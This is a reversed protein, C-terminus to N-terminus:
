PIVTQVSSTFEGGQWVLPFTLKLQHTEGQALYVPMENQTTKGSQTVSARVLVVGEAGDNKVKIDLTAYYAKETGSTTAVVKEVIAKPKVANNSDASPTQESTGINGLCGTLSILLAVLLLIAACIFLKRNM